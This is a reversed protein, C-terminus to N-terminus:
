VVVIDFELQYEALLEAKCRLEGMDHVGFLWGYDSARLAALFYHPVLMGAWEPGEAAFTAFQNVQSLPCRFAVANWDPFM